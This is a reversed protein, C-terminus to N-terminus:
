YSFIQWTLRTFFVSRVPRGDAAIAPDFQARRLFINCTQLDLSRSGSSSVLGCETPKGDPEVTLRVVVTGQEKKKLAEAPYDNDSVLSALNKKGKARSKLTALAATDVKWEKLVERECDALADVAEAAGPVPMTAVTKGRGEVTISAAKAYQDLFSRDISMAVIGLRGNGQIRRVTATVAQSADLRVAVEDGAKLPFSKWSHDVVVIDVSETGPVLQMAVGLPAAGGRERVLSCQNQGWDVLWRGGAPPGGAQVAPPAPAPAPPAAVGVTAFLASAGLFHGLSM